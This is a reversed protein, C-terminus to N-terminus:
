LESRRMLVTIQRHFPVFSGSEGSSRTKEIGYGLDKLGQALEARYVAGMAMKNRYLGDNVVTMWKGDANQQM